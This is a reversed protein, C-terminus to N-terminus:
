PRDRFVSTSPFRMIRARSAPPTAHSIILTASNTDIFRSSAMASLRRVISLNRRAMPTSHLEGVVLVASVQDVALAVGDGTAFPATKKLFAARPGSGTLVLPAPKM